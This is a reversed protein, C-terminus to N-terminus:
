DTQAIAASRHLCVREGWGGREFFFCLPLVTKETATLCVLVVICVVVIVVIVMIVVVM